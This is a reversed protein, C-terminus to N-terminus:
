STVPLLKDEKSIVHDAFVPAACFLFDSHSLIILRKSGHNRMDYRELADFRHSSFYGIAVNTTYVM